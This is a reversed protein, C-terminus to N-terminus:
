GKPGGLKEPTVGLIQRVTRDDTSEHPVCDLWGNPVDKVERCESILDLDPSQEGQVITRMEIDLAESADAEMEEPTDADSWFCVTVVAQTTYLKATM